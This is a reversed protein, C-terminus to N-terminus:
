VVEVCQRVKCRGQRRVASKRQEEWARELAEMDVELWDEDMWGEFWSGDWPMCCYACEEHM